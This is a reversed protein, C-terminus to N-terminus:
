QVVISCECKLLCAEERHGGRVDEFLSRRNCMRARGLVDSPIIDQTSSAREQGHQLAAGSEM